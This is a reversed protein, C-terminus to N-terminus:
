AAGDGRKEGGAAPGGPGQLPGVPQGDDGLPRPEAVGVELHHAAQEAPRDEEAAAVDALGLGDGAEAKGGVSDPPLRPRFPPPPPPPPPPPTTQTSEPGAAKLPSGPAGGSPYVTFLGAQPRRGPKGLPHGFM